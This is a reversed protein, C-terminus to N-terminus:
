DTSDRPIEWNVPLHVGYHQAPEKKIQKLIGDSSRVWSQSNRDVFALEVASHAGMGKFNGRVHVYSRGPPIVSLFKMHEPRADLGTRPGAGQMLVISAVARYVPSASNNQLAVWSYSPDEFSIWSSIDSAQQDLENKHRIAREQGIQLLAAFLAGVTGVAGVCTGLAIWDNTTLHIM